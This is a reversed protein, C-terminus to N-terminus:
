IEVDLIDSIKQDRLFPLMDKEPITHLFRYIETKSFYGRMSLTGDEGQYTITVTLNPQLRLIVKPRQIFFSQEMERGYNAYGPEFGMIKIFQMARDYRGCQGIEKSETDYYASRSPMDQFEEAGGIYYDSDDIIDDILIDRKQQASVDNKMSNILARTATDFIFMTKETREAIAECEDILDQPIESKTYKVEGLEQVHGDPRGKDAIEIGTQGKPLTATNIQIDM